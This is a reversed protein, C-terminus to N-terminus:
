RKIQQNQILKIALPQRGLRNLRTKVWQMPCTSGPVTHRLQRSRDANLTPGQESAEAQELGQHFLHHDTLRDGPDLDRLLLQLLSPVSQEKLTPKIAHGLPRLQQLGQSAALVLNELAKAM